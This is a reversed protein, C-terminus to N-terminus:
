LRGLQFIPRKSTSDEGLVTSGSGVTSNSRWYTRGDRLMACEAVGLTVLRRAAEPLDIGTHELFTVYTHWLEWEEIELAM